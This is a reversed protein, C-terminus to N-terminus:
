YKSAELLEVLDKFKKQPKVKQKYGWIELWGKFGWLFSKTMVKDQVYDCLLFRQKVVDPKAQCNNLIYAISEAGQHQEIIYDEAYYEAVVGLMSDKKFTNKRYYGMLGANEWKEFGVNALREITVTDLRGM